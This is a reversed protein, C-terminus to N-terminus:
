LIFVLICFIVPKGLYMYLIFVCVCVLLVTYLVVFLAICHLVIFIKCCMIFVVNTITKGLDIQVEIYM